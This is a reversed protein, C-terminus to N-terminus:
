HPLTIKGPWHSTFLLWKQCSCKIARKSNEMREEHTCNNHCTIAHFPWLVSASVGGPPYNGPSCGPVFHDRQSCSTFEQQTLGCLTQHVKTITAFGLGDKSVFWLTHVHCLNKSPLFSLVLHLLPFVIGSPLLPHSPLDMVLLQM